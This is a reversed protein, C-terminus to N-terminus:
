LRCQNAWWAKAFLRNGQAAGDRPLWDAKRIIGQLCVSRYLPPRRAGAVHWSGAPVQPQHDRPAEVQGSIETVWISLRMHGDAAAFGGTTIPLPTVFDGRLRAHSASARVGTAFDGEIWISPPSLIDRGTLQSSTSCYHRIHTWGL